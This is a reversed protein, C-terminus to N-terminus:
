CLQLKALKIQLMVLHNGTFFCHLDMLDLPVLSFIGIKTFPWESSKVRFCPAPEQGQCKQDRSQPHDFINFVSSYFFVWKWKHFSITKCTHSFRIQQVTHKKQWGAKRNCHLLSCKERQAFHQIEEPGFIDKWSAVKAGEILLLKKKKFYCPKGVTKRTM